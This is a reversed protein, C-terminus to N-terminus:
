APIGPPGLIEIGYEAALARWGSSTPRSARRRRSRCRRRRARRGRAHLGRLRRARHRPPLPGRRLHRRVHAPRRAPRLRVLRGARRDGRRRGLLDARGRTVYFWEDERRHVHLPSGAGRPALHEIVAVRGDTTESSAKITALTGLFWLAEGEDGALAIPDLSTDTTTSMRTERGIRSVYTERNRRLRGGGDRETLNRSVGHIMILM